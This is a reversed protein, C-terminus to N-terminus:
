QLLITYNCQEKKKRELEFQNCDCYILPASFAFSKFLWSSQTYMQISHSSLTLPLSLSLSLIGTQVSKKRMEEKKKTREARRGIHRLYYADFMLISMLSKISIKIASCKGPSSKLSWTKICKIMSFNQFSLRNRLTSVEFWHPYIM